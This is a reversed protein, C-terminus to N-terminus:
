RKARRSAISVILTLDAKGLEGTVILAVVYAICVGTAVVPTLLKSFMPTYAGVFFAGAVCMGVRLATKLPVFAGAERRVFVIAVALACVLATTTAKATADLQPAGFPALPIMVACTAGLLTLAVATITM